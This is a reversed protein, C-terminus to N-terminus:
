RAQATAGYTRLIGDIEQDHTLALATEGAKSVINVNAGAELLAKVAEICDNEAAFMLASKGEKNIANINAGYAVLLRVIDGEGYEAYHMLTTIKQKDVADAKAGSRLLLEVLEVSADSDLMMLPTRKQGDRANVKAGHEILFQTIEINGTEVAAHLPSTGRANIRVGMRVLAKVEDLDEREVAAVLPNVNRVVVCSVVGTLFSGEYKEPGGVQVTENLNNVDLRLDRRESGGDYIDVATIERAEFGPAEFRLKYKGPPLGIFEYRGEADATASRYEGTVENTVSVLASAIVAGNQDTVTGSLDGSGGSINTSSQDAQVVAAIPLGGQSYAAPAMALSATMVGAALRPTRRTIQMLQDAFLPRKTRPDPVYRVCLNGGSARVLRMAEKRTVASLDNVDKACHDCFRVRDNGHMKEWDETCPSKVEVSDIFSKKSM